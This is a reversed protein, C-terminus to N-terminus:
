RFTDPATHESQAPLRKFVYINQLTFDDELYFDDKISTRHLEWGKDHMYNLLSTETNFTIIEGEEDLIKCRKYAMTCGKQGYDVLAYRNSFVNGLRISIFTLDEIQNIDTSGVLLQAHTFQTSLLGLIFIIFAKKM